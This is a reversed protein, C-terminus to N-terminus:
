RSMEPKNSQCEEPVLTNGPSPGIRSRDIQLLLADLEELKFLRYNNVPHRYAPIKGAREWNRLTSPSVGLYRAADGVRVYGRDHTM